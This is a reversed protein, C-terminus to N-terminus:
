VNDMNCGLGKAACLELRQLCELLSWGKFASQCVGAKSLVGAFELRALVAFVLRALVAVFV